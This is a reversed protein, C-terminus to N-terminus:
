PMRSSTSKAPDREGRMREEEGILRGETVPGDYVAELVPGRDTDVSTLVDHLAQKGVAEMSANSAEQSSASEDLESYQKPVPRQLGNGSAQAWHTEGADHPDKRTSEQPEPLGESAAAQKAANSVTM